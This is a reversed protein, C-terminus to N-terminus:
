EDVIIVDVSYKTDRTNEMIFLEGEISGGREFISQDVHYEIDKYSGSAIQVGNTGMNLFQDVPISEDGIIQTPFGFTSIDKDANNTIRLTIAAKGYDCGIIEIEANGDMCTDSTNEITVEKASDPDSDQLPDSDPRRLVVQYVGGGTVDMSVQLHEKEEDIFDTRARIVSDNCEIDINEDDIVRYKAVLGGIIMAGNDEFRITTNEPFLIMYSALMVSTMLNDDGNANIGEQAVREVVWEGIINDKLGSSSKQEAKYSQSSHNGKWLTFVTFAGIAALVLLVTFGVVVFLKKIFSLATNNKPKKRGDRANELAEGRGTEGTTGTEGTAGTEGNIPEGCFPCFKVTSALIKGCKPCTMNEERELTM